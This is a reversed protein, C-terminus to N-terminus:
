FFDIEFYNGTPKVEVDPVKGSTPSRDDRTMFPLPVEPPSACRILAWNVSQFFPHQKIETAGRRYALRHQPEKVLLGRILDRAAFSVTPSEPFRLPQGVVNFLTARNGAGKFPTRGFLLEYLFIGFTWWDVASGHGEGKIIEPALYEHTGVFSMSRASTPEALLEPLPNGQNSIELKPKSKKEKKSKSIFRPAFCTPQICTPQIACSPEICYGSSKSKSNSNSFKILTPSVACRLSLDFDSLMIHGDERVLINEPKLDRYIVGLMHLYELALLVEAVYFRAAHEPFFKGPQKQRLAHLDGGPCYEMVLFSFKDTEFHTYLTPLFPHDLSQLIERETQARPLKKRSALAEKDMVKMAFYTRTGILEALHVSGIDGGGLRKLIRFHKLDLSGNYRSRVARIAEWRTDNAKHPKYMASSFSSSCSEDSVDSSTSGRHISTKQSEMFDCSNSVEESEGSKKVSSVCESIETNTFSQKAELYQTASYFSNQPSPCYRTGSKSPLHDNLLKVAGKAASYSVFDVSELNDISPSNETDDVPHPIYDKGDLTLAQKHTSDEGMDENGNGSGPFQKKGNNSRLQDTFLDSLGDKRMSFHSTKYSCKSSIVSDTQTYTKKMGHDTPIVNSGSSRGEFSHQETSPVLPPRSTETVSSPHYQVSIASKPSMPLSCTGVVLPEKINMPM